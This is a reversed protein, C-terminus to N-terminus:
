NKTSGIKNLFLRFNQEAQYLVNCLITVVINTELWMCCWTLTGNSNDTADKGYIMIKKGMWDSIITISLISKFLNLENNDSVYDYWM